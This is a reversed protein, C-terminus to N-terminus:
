EFKWLYGKFLGRNHERTMARSLAKANCKFKRAADRMSIYSEILNGQLDYRNISKGKIFKVEKRKEQLSLLQEQSLHLHKSKMIESLKKKHEETLKYGFTGGGGLTINYGYNPNASNFKNIYYMEMEDLVIKVYDLVECQIRFLVEYNFNEFGYKQIAAHFHPNKEIIANKHALVERKM